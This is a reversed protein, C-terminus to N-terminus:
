YDYYSLVKDLPSPIYIVQGKRVHSETPKKNFWAIVWWLSADGYHEHALKYYRDGVSWIHSSLDLTAIQRATPYKLTPTDYQKIFNVNRESFFEFYLKNNNIKAFRNIYRM